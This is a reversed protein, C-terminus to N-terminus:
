RMSNDILHGVYYIHVPKNAEYMSVIMNRTGPSTGDWFAILGDAYKAMQDNRIAGAARQFRNWDAPFSVVPLQQFYAWEEGLRDAGRAGGSVVEKIDWELPLVSMFGLFADFDTFERSGAIIVRM